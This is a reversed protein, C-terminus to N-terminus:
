SLTRMKCISKTRKQPINELFRIGSTFTLYEVNIVTFFVFNNFASYEHSKMPKSVNRFPKMDKWGLANLMGGLKLILVNQRMSMAIFYVSPIQSHRWEHTSVRVKKENFIQHKWAPISTCQTCIHFLKCFIIQLRSFSFM